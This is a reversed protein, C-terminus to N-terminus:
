QVSVFLYLRGKLDAGEAHRPNLLVHGSVEVIPCVPIDHVHESFMPEPEVVRAPAVEIKM